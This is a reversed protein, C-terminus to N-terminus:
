PGRQFIYEVGGFRLLDGDRLVYPEGPRTRQGNLYTGNAIGEPVEHVHWLVGRRFLIAHRRSITLSNPETSLDLTPLWNRSRSKRGISVEAGTLTFTNGNSAVLCSQWLTIESVLEAYKSLAVMSDEQHALEKGPYGDCTM